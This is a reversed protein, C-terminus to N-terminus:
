IHILSLTMVNSNNADMYYFLKDTTLSPPEGGYSFSNAGGGLSPLSLIPSEKKFNEKM